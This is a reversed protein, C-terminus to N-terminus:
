YIFLFLYIIFFYYIFFLYYIIFISFLIFFYFKIHLLHSCIDISNDLTKQVLDGSPIARLISNVLFPNSSRSYAKHKLTLHQFYIQDELDMKRILKSDSINGLSQFILCLAVQITTSRQIGTSCNIVIADKESIKSEVCFKYLMEFVEISPNSNSTIPIRIYKISSGTENFNFEKEYEMFIQKPTKVAQNSLYEWTNILESNHEDQILIM